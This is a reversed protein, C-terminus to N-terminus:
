ATAKESEVQDKLSATKVQTEVKKLSAKSLGAASVGRADGVVKEKIEQLVLLNTFHMCARLFTFVATKLAKAKAALDEDKPANSPSSM